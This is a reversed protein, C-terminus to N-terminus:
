TLSGSGEDKIGSTVWVYKGGEAVAYSFAQDVARKFELETVNPKKCEVIILPSKLADDSYVLIDAEKTEAGMQVPVFQRIRHPPYKYLLTLSLFASAQVQEEPNEYNRRKQQHLYVIYRGGDELRILGKKQGEAILNM